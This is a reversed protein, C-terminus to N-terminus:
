SALSAGEYVGNKVGGVIAALSPKYLKDESKSLKFGAVDLKVVAKKNVMKSTFPIKLAELLKSYSAWNVRGTLGTEVKFEGADTKISHVGSEVKPAAPLGSEADAKGSGNAEKTKRTGTRAAQLAQHTGRLAELAAEYALAEFEPRFAQQIADWNQTKRIESIAKQQNKENDKISKLQTSLALVDDIENNSAAEAIKKNLEVVAPNVASALLKSLIAKGVASAQPSQANFTALAEEYIEKASKQTENQAM